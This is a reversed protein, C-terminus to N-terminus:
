SKSLTIRWTSNILLKKHQTSFFRIFVLMVVVYMPNWIIDMVGFDDILNLVELLTSVGYGHYQIHRISDQKGLENSVHAYTDVDTSIVNHLPKIFIDKPSQEIGIKDEGNDKDPKLDNASFINYSFLDKDSIDNYKGYDYESFSTENKWNDDDVHQSNLRAVLLCNHIQVNVAVVLSPHKPQDVLQQHLHPLEQLHSEQADPVILSNCLSDSLKPFYVPPYLIILDMHEHKSHDEFFCSHVELMDICYPNLKRSTHFYLPSSNYGKVGFSVRQEMELLLNPLFSSDNPEFLTQYEAQVLFNIVMLVLEQIRQHHEDPAIYDLLSNMVKLKPTSVNSMPSKGKERNLVDFKTKLANYSIRLENYEKQNSILDQLALNSELSAIQKLFQYKKAKSDQIKRDLQREHVVRTNELKEFYTKFKDTKMSIEVKADEFDKTQQDLVM